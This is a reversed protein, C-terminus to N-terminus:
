RMPCIKFCQTKLGLLNLPNLTESMADLTPRSPLLPLMSILLLAAHMVLV